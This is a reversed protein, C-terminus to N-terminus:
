HEEVDEGLMGPVLEENSGAVPSADVSAIM